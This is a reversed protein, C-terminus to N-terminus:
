KIKSIMIRANDNLEVWLKDNDSSRRNAHDCIIFTNFAFNDGIVEDFINEEQNRILDEIVLIGGPKLYRAHNEIAIRQHELDHSADDVIIDFLVGTNRTAQM